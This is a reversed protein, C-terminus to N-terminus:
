RVWKPSDSTASTDSDPAKQRSKAAWVAGLKRQSRKDFPTSCPPDSAPTDLRPFKSCKSKDPVCRCPSNGASNAVIDLRACRLRLLQSMLIRKGDSQDEHGRTSM